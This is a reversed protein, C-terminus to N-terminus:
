CDWFVSKSFVAEPYGGCNLYNVFHNNLTEIDITSARSPRGPHRPRRIRVLSTLKLLDMYEFFTLPPLLFDTFRGAGSETSKLRLAAAASGTAIFKITPFSDVLAKLQVEWERLYQVEDFCITLPATIMTGSAEIACQLLEEMGLGNYLPQQLDLYTINNRLEGNAVLARILHFVLVTKGVRRPGMLVLARNPKRAEALPAFLSFYRHPRLSSFPIVATDDSGWWPNSARIKATIQEHSFTRM